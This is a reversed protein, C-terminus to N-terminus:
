LVSNFESISFRQAGSGRRRGGGDGGRERRRLVRKRLGFAALMAAVVAVAASFCLLATRGAETLRKGSSSAPPLPSGIGEKDDGGGGGGGNNSGGDIGDTTASCSRVDGTESDFGQDCVYALDSTFVFDHLELDFADGGNGSEEDYEVSALFVCHFLTRNQTQHGTKTKPVIEVGANGSATVTGALNLVPAITFDNDIFCNGTMNLSGAVNSIVFGIYTAALPSPGSDYSIDGMVTPVNPSPLDREEEESTQITGYFTNGVLNLTGNKNVIVGSSQRPVTGVVNGSFISDTVTITIGSAGIARPISETGSESFWESSGEDTDPQKADSSSQFGDIYISALNYNDIFVCDDFLVDSSLTAYVNATTADTFTLGKCIVNELPENVGTKFEDHIGVQISGGKLVCRNSSKGDAGCLVHINSRGFILPPSDYATVKDIGSGVSIPQIDFDTDPCLRYTRTVADSELQQEADYIYQLDTICPVQGRAEQLVSATCVDSDHQQCSRALPDFPSKADGGATGMNDDYMGTSVFDCKTTPLVSTERQVSNSHLHVQGDQNLVPAIADDNDVFCNNHLTLDGEV